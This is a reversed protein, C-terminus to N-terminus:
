PPLRFGKRAARRKGDNVQAALKARRERVYALDAEPTGPKPPNLEPRYQLQSARVNYLASDCLDDGFQEHHDDRDENWPLVLMEQRLDRCTFPNLTWTGALMMGRVMHINALKQKKEAKILPIGYTNQLDNAIMKGQAGEDVVVLDPSYEKRAKEIEAALRAVTLGEVRWAAVAHWDPFGRTSDGIVFACPDVFGLDVSLVRFTREYKPETAINLQPNWPYVVASDDRVWLGRWERVYTPHDTSWNRKERRERLWREAHPIHPNQLVTWHHVRWEDSDAVEIGEQAVATVDHFLGASVVGPTGTLALEGDCDLLTPELVEEIMPKLYSGYVQGEDVAVRRFPFGRFKEIEAENPCGALWIRHGNPHRVMLQGDEEKLKLGLGHARSIAQMASWLARANNRRQAIYLSMGIRDGDLEAGRILWSGIGHSKGARRSCLASKRKSTDLVFRQQEPFLERIYAPQAFLRLAEEELNV